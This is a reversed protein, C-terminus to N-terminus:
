VLLLGKAFSLYNMNNGDFQKSWHLHLTKKSFFYFSTSEGQFNSIAIFENEIQMSTECKECEECEDHIGLNFYQSKLRITRLPDSVDWLSLKEKGDTHSLVAMQDGTMCCSELYWAVREDEDLEPVESILRGSFDLIKIDDDWQVVIEANTVAWSDDPTEISSIVELSRRHVLYILDTPYSYIAIRDSWVTINYINEFPNRSSNRKFNGSLWNRDIRKQEEIIARCLSRYPVTKLKEVDVGFIRVIDRWQPSSVIKRQFLRRWPTGSILVNRWQLCVTECRLLDEEDLQDFIALLVDEDLQNPQSYSFLSMKVHRAYAVCHLSVACESKVIAVQIVFMNIRVHVFMSLLTSRTHLSTLLLLDLVL